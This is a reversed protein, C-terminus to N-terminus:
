KLEFNIPLSYRMPVPLGRKIGPKWKGSTLRVIRLAEKDLNPDVNNIIGLDSITGDRDVVFSTVVRGQKKARAAEMPYKINQALFRYMKDDGGEFSPYVVLETYNIVQDGVWRKGVLLRSREYEEEIKEGAPSTLKWTGYLFGSEIRGIGWKFGAETIEGNGNVLLAKGTSDNLAIIKDIEEGNSLTETYYKEKLISNPYWAMTQTIAGGEYLRIRATQGNAYFVKDHEGPVIEKVVRRNQTIVYEPFHTKFSNLGLVLAYAESDGLYKELEDVNVDLMRATQDASLRVPKLEIVEYKGWKKGKKEAWRIEDIPLGNDDVKIRLHYSAEELKTTQRLFSDYYFDFAMDAAKYGELPVHPFQITFNFYQRVSNGEKIAPVWARFLKFIRLVEENAAENLGNVVELSSMTGDTEIIGRVDVNGQIPKVRNVFPIQINHRVFELFTPMGGKPQAPHDVQSAEFIQQANLNLISLFIFLTVIYRKHM